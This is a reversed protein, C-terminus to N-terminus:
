QVHAVTRNCVSACVVAIQSSKLGSAISINIEGCELSDSLSHTDNLFGVSHKGPPNWEPSFCKLKVSEALGFSGM